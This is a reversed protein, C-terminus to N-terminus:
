SKHEVRAVHDRKDVVARDNGPGGNLVDASSDV